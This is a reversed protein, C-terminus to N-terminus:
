KAEKKARERAIAARVEDYLYVHHSAPIVEALLTEAAELLTPEPVPETIILRALLEDNKPRKNNSLPYCYFRQGYAPDVVAAGNPISVDVVRERTRPAPAPQKGCKCPRNKPACKCVVVNDYEITIPNCYGGTCKERLNPTGYKIPEGDFLVGRGYDSVWRTVRRIM